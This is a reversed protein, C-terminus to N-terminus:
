KDRLLTDGKIFWAVGFAVIALSEFWFIPDWSAVQSVFFYGTLALGVLCGVITWGCIRYVLNRYAKQRTAPGDGSRTFRNICFIALVVFFLLAFGIHFSGIIKQGSTANDPTTPFLALGIAGLAALYGCINDVRDYGYYAMLFVGVACMSGVFVGRMDTYYSDSISPLLGGGQLLIKGLTVVFPLAVGIVGIARRLFLYSHVLTRTPVQTSALTQPQTQAM